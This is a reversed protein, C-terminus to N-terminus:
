PVTFCSLSLCTDPSRLIMYPVPLLKLLPPVMPTLLGTVVSVVSGDTQDRICSARLM